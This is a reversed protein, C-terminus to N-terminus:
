GDLLPSTEVRPGDRGNELRREYSNGGGANSDGEERDLVEQARESDGYADAQISGRMNRRRESASGNGSGGIAKLAKAWGSTSDPYLM